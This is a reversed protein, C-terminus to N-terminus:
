GFDRLVGDWENNALGTLNLEKMARMIQTRNSKCVDNAPHAKIQGYRGTIILGEDELIAEAQKLHDWSTAVIHALFLSSEDLKYLEALDDFVKKANGKLDAHKM